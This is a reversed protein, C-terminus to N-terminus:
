LVVLDDPPDALLALNDASILALICFQHLACARAGTVFGSEGVLRAAVYCDRGSGSGLDLVRLGTTGLPLPTGCGYFKEVVQCLHRATLGLQYLSVDIGALQTPRTQHWRQCVYTHVGSTMCLPKNLGTRMLAQGQMLGTRMLAQGAHAAHAHAGAGAHAAHAHAGAGAHAAHAHAGAGAHVAHAHAGAGAHAAHAHAGAGAHAGCLM